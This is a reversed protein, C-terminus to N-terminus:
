RATSSARESACPWDLWACVAEGMISDADEPSLWPLAETFMTVAQRYPCPLRTLDTAWFVRRPGFADVVRKIHGHVSRYPYEDTAANVLGSLKVGLNAHRALALLQPLHTFAAEGRAQGPIGMHDIILRLDPHRGAIASLMPLDHPALLMLPVDHREALPWLWDATGDTLQARDEPRAFNFRLGRMGAIERWKPLATRSEPAALPLRGMVAFRTPHAQAAELCQANEGGTWGPPILVARQVGAADMHALLVAAPLPTPRHAGSPALVGPGPAWLHVQADVIRM